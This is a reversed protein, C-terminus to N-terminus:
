SSGHGEEEEGNGLGAGTPTPLGTQISVVGATTDVVSTAAMADGFHRTATEVVSTANGLGGSPGGEIGGGIGSVMGAVGGATNFVTTATVPATIGPLKVVGVGNFVATTGAVDGAALTATVTVTETVTVAKCVPAESFSPCKRPTVPRRYNPPIVGSVLDPVPAPAAACLAATLLLALTASPRM